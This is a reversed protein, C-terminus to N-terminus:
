QEDGAVPKLEFRQAPPSTDQEEEDTEEEGEGAIDKKMQEITEDDLMLVNKQVWEKSFYEGVYQQIMDMSQLRERLMEADRLEAFHNDKVYDVTIDNKWEEWDEETIVGKMVLQKKLIGYFLHSFRMRLRDIFKQFKLEDRNVETSRGLFGQVAETDMRSIPVNLSRYMRKQFYLIDEIQGLNEGGPLTTIETGRGGERRPLWFDELLSQHKRDDRIEGTKADYVLKNRYKAMIDKMYQESKGRPLNGVDIYFIRREPARALRYIVLADEMMRLQNIPKLAKHIHSVIKKRDETLLGSTVYSVSDNTMKIGSTSQGPKEQYIFFEETKEVIKAGTIPDKKYKVKKVKRMKAADMPRIEQIGEKPRDENVVLHHYLRGDIYWRRFIDHGLEKFNLMAYINDFEEKILKKVRDPAQVEDLNLELTQSMESGTISENVIDEIAADVEPHMANGRYKMILQYNDKSDDGDLNLYQGYHTGAATAYSGGEDDRPPVVSPLKKDEADKRARKIEFGFLKLGDNEAM